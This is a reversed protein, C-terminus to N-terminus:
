KPKISVYGSKTVQALSSNSKLSQLSNLDSDPDLNINIKNNDEELVTISSNLINNAGELALTNSSDNLSHYDMEDVFRIWLSVDRNQIKAQLLTEFSKDKTYYDESFAEKWNFSLSNSWSSIVM